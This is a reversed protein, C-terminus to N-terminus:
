ATAAAVSMSSRFPSHKEIFESVPLHFFNSHAQPSSPLPADPVLGSRDSSSGPVGPVLSTSSRKTAISNSYQDEGYSEAGAAGDMGLNRAESQDKKEEAFDFSSRKMDTDRTKGHNVGSGSQVGPISGGDEGSISGGRVLTSDGVDTDTSPSNHQFLRSFRRSQKTSSVTVTAASEYSSVRRVASSTGSSAHENADPGNELSVQRLLHQQSTSPSGNPSGSSNRNLGILIPNAPRSGVLSGPPYATTNKNSGSPDSVLTVASTATESISSSTTIHSTINASSRRRVFRINPHSMGARKGTLVYYRGIGELVEKADLYHRVWTYAYETLCVQGVSAMNIANGLHSLPEGSVLFEWRQEIGLCMCYVNGCAVACHLRLNVANRGEGENYNGCERVLQLACLSAMLATAGKVEESSYQDCPFIFLVADGLFKVADGGNRKVINLLMSFYNSVCFSLSLILYSTKHILNANM